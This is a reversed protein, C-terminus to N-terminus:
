EDITLDMQKQQLDVKKVIVRVPDGLKYAKGNHYGLVQYNDEDLFYFDDKMDELRVLGEGKCVDVEVFLGWKSVGSIVGSCPKGIFGVMYEMQKLKTSDREADVARKEM